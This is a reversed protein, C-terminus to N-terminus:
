LYSLWWKEKHSQKYNDFKKCMPYLLIIVLIWILYVSILNFGYGKLAEVRTIFTPMSIMVQWGFGTFEAAFVAIFHILYIHIIYYFFPVRGFVCFFNVIKGKLKESNALFLFTGSLTILLYLLSPPYKSINFISMITKTTDGYNTWQVPDGYKNVAILIFFLLISLLGVSNLIKKRKETDFSNDYLSGFCYGLSMVAIWPLLSYAFIVTHGEAFEFKKREHLMAWLFNGDFHINDLLNHGFIIVISFALIVKKPLHILGALVIMSIGLVWIVQLGIHRFHIDFKWAFNIIIIEVFVLWVGRKLLFSSLENIPKRKGIMFASLGALFSFAPACFHTIFRTFFIPLTTQTPDTADFYFASYHFYDRVHDLAMIVMVLGKLLDISQIRQKTITTMDKKNVFLEVVM